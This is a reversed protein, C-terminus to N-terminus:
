QYQYEQNIFLFDLSMNRYQQNDPLGVNGFGSVQGVRKVVQKTGGEYIANNIQMDQKIFVASIVQSRWTIVQQGEYFGGQHLGVM